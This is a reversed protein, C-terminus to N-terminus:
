IRLSLGLVSVDTASTFLINMNIIIINVCKKEKLVKLTIKYSLSSDETM